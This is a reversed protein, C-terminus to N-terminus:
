HSINDYSRFCFTFTKEIRLWRKERGEEDADDYNERRKGKGRKM